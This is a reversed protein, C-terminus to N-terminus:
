PLVELIEYTRYGRCAVSMTIWRESGDKLIEFVAKGAPTDRRVQFWFQAFGGTQDEVHVKYTQDDDARSLECALTMVVPDKPPAALYTKLPMDHRPPKPVPICGILLVSALLVSTTRCM